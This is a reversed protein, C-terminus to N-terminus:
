TSIHFDAFACLLAVEVEIIKFTISKFEDEKLCLNEPTFRKSFDM